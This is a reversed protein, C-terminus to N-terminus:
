DVRNQYRPLPKGLSTVNKKGEGKGVRDETKKLKIKGYDRGWTNVPCLDRNAALCV